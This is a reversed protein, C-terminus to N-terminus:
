YSDSPSANGYFANVTLNPNNRYHQNNLQNNNVNLQSMNIQAPQRFSINQPSYMNSDATPSKEDDTQLGNHHTNSMTYTRRYQNNNNVTLQSMSIQSPQRFSINQSSYMNSDATPSKEDDTHQGNIM